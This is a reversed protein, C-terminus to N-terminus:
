GTGAEARGARSRRWARGAVELAERPGAECTSCTPWTSYATASRELGGGRAGARDGPAPPARRGRGRRPRDASMGLTNLVEAEAGGTAPPRPPPWRRRATSSAGRPLPRAPLTDPGALWCRPANGARRGRAADRPRAAGDRRGRPGPQAGVARPGAAGAARRLPPPRGRSRAAWRPRSCCRAGAATTAERARAAAVLSCSSTTWRSRREPEPVRPWLELAREALEAADGHRPPARCGAGARVTARLAAPQDGAAAYHRAVTASREVERERSRRAASWRRRWRSICSAASAPCCITTCPRACSPTASASAATRGAYWCRSPWRRACPTTCAQGHRDRDSPSRRRTSGAGGAIARAAQRADRSLREIRLMFADRLSQPAAGRGDLGAALLEEAYLPNGESRALLRDVLDREPAEGLIDTLAEALEGRDFPALEIRRARELRELEALLPRLPHRRHLEDTRYSLLLM